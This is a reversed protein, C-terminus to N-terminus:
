NMGSIDFGVRQRNGNVAFTLVPKILTLYVNTGDLGPVGTEYASLLTLTTRILMKDEFLYAKVYESTTAVPIAGDPPVGDVLQFIRSDPTASLANSAPIADMSGPLRKPLRLDVRYDTEAQNGFLGVTVPTPLGKLFVAINGTGYYGKNSITVSSSGPVPTNATFDKPNFNTVQDVPWPQGRSDIFNLVAGHYVAIRVGPPPAGPSLDVMISGTVPKSNIAPTRSARRTEELISKLELLEDRTMPIQEERAANFSEKKLDVPPLQQVAPQTPQGQPQGQQGPAGSQQSPSFPSGDANTARGQADVYITGPAAIQAQAQFAMLCLLLASHKKVSKKVNIDLPM